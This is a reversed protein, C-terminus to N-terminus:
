QQWEVGRQGVPHGAPFLTPGDPISGDRSLQVLSYHTCALDSTLM